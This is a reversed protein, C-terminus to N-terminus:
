LGLRAALEAGLVLLGASTAWLLALYLWPLARSRSVRRHPFLSRAPESRLGVESSSRPAPLSDAVPM